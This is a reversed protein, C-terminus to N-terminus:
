ITAETLAGTGEFSCSFSTNEELGHSRTLSTLLASGTYKKDGSVQSSTMVTVANRATLVAFLDDFGYTADEAFMGEASATWSMTSGLATKWGSTDKNTTERTAMSIDLDNSVLNAVKTGGVYIAILTGNVIGTTAM